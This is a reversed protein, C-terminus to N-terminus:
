IQTAAAQESHKRATRQEDTLKALKEADLQSEGSGGKKRNNTVVKAGEAALARAIARGVGQGSGPVVAVKGELYRSM